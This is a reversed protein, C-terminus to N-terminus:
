NFCDFQDKLFDLYYVNFTQFGEEFSLKVRDIEIQKLKKLDLKNIAYSCQYVTTNGDISAKAGQYSMLVFEKDNMTYLILPSRKRINGFKSVAQTSAVYFNINLAMNGKSSRSLFGECRIFDDEELFKRYEKPTYSFFPRPYLGTKRLGTFEDTVDFSYACNQHNKPHTKTPGAQFNTKALLRIEEEQSLNAISTDTQKKQIAEEKKAQKALAKESRTKEKIWDKTAKLEKEEETLEKVKKKKPKKKDASLSQVYVVGKSSSSSDQQPSFQYGAFAFATPHFCLILGLLAFYIIKITM